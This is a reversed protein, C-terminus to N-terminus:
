FYYPFLSIIEGNTIMVLYPDFYTSHKSDKDLPLPYYYGNVTYNDYDEFVKDRGSDVYGYPNSTPDDRTYVCVHLHVGTVGKGTKGVIGMNTGTTVPYEINKEGAHANFYDVVDQDISSLHCYTSYYEQGQTNTHKVTITIGDAHKKDVWKGAKEDYEQIINGNEDYYYQSPQIAVIVGDLLPYIENIDGSIDYGLHGRFDDNTTDNFGQTITCGKYPGEEIITKEKSGDSNTTINKLGEM